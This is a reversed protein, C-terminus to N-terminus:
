RSDPHQARAALEEERQQQYRVKRLHGSMSRLLLWLALALFFIMVFAAWGPGIQSYLSGPGGPNM